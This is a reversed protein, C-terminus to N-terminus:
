ISGNPNIQAVDGSRLWGDETFADATNEPDKFYSNMIGTGKLCIEGTPPMNKSSYGMEPIDKLKVKVNAM